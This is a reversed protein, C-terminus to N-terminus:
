VIRKKPLTLHTYSVSETTETFIGMKVSRSLYLELIIEGGEVIAAKMTGIVLLRKTKIEGVQFTSIKGSSIVRMNMPIIASSKEAHYADEVIRKIFVILADDITKANIISEVIIEYSQLNPTAIMECLANEVSITEVFM